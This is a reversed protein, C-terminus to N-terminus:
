KEKAKAGKRTRVILALAVALVVILGAAAIPLMYNMGKSRDDEAPRQEDPQSVIGETKEVVTGQDTTKQVLPSKLIEKIVEDDPALVGYKYVLDGLRRDVITTGRPLGIGEWSFTEDTVETDFDFEEIEVETKKRLTGDPRWGQDVYSKLYWGGSPTPQVQAEFRGLLVHGKGFDHLNEFKLVVGGRNPDVYYRDIDKPLKKWVVEVVYVESGSLPETAVKSSVARDSTSIANELFDAWFAENDPPLFESFFRSRERGAEPESIYAHDYHTQHRYYGEDTVFTRTHVIWGPLAEEQWDVRVNVDKYAAEVVRSREKSLEGDESYHLTHVSARVSGQRLVSLNAEAAETLFQLVVDPDHIPLASTYALGPLFCLLFAAVKQFFV